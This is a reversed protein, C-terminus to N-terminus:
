QRLIFSIPDQNTSTAEIAPTQSDYFGEIRHPEHAEVVLEVGRQGDDGLHVECHRRYARKRWEEGLM